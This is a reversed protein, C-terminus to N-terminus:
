PYRVNTDQHATSLLPFTDLGGGESLPLLWQYAALM